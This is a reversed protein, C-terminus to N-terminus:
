KQPDTDKPFWLSGSRNIAQNTTFYTYIILGILDFNRM